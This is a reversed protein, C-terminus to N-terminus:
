KLVESSKEVNEKYWKDAEVLATFPDDGWAAPMGNECLPEPCERTDCEQVDWQGSKLRYPQWGRRMMVDFANRALAYFEADDRSCQLWPGANSVGAVTMIFSKSGDRWEAVQPAPTLKRFDM